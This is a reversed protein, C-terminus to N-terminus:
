YHTMFFIQEDSLLDTDIVGEEELMVLLVIGRQQVTAHEMGRALAFASVNVTPYTYIDHQRQSAPAHTAVWITLHGDLERAEIDSSRARNM